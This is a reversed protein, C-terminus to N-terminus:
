SSEKPLEIAHRRMSFRPGGALRRRAFPEKRALSRDAVALTAVTLLVLSFAGLMWNGIGPNWRADRPVAAEGESATGSAAAFSALARDEIRYLNSSSAAMSMSWNASTAYGLVRMAPRSQLDVAMGSFLWMVIFVVPVLAMAKESSSVMASLLLGLSMAAVGGLAIDVVLELLPSGLWVATAPGGAGRTAVFVLIAVQGTTLAGLVLAKSVLYASRSLGVARERYYIPLEKVIERVANAAGVAAASVALAGLLTRAGHLNDNPGPAFSHRGVLALILLAPILVSAVLYAMNRRDAALIALHRRSLASVQTWWAVPSSPAAVPASAPDDEWLPAPRRHSAAQPRGRWREPSATELEQFVSAYQSRDFFGLADAAPGFFAMKGGPALFLVKDCLELSQVSHTVVVVVRGGDALERLLEM